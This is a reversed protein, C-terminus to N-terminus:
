KLPVIKGIDKSRKQANIMTIDNSDITDSLEWIEYFM